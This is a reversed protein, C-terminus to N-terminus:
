LSHSLGHIKNLKVFKEDVFSKETNTIRAYQLLNVCVFDRRQWTLKKRFFSFNLRFIFSIFFGGEGFVSTSIFFSSLGVCIYIEDM